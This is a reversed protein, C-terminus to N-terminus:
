VKNTSSRRSGASGKSKVSSNSMKRGFPAKKLGNTNATPELDMKGTKIFAEVGNTNTQSGRRSSGNSRITSSSNRRSGNQLPPLTEPAKLPKPSAVEESTPAVDEKDDPAAPPIPTHSLPNKTFEPIELEGEEALEGNTAQDENNEPPPDGDPDPTKATETEVSKSAVVEDIPVFGPPEENASDAVSDAENGDQAKQEEIRKRVEERREAEKKQEEEVDRDIRPGLETMNAIISKVLWKFGDKLGHNKTAISPEVRTPCRAANVLREVNLSNVVHVEDKAEDIDAKNCLMLIPKGKVKDDQLITEFVKFVSFRVMNLFSIARPNGVTPLHLVQCVNEIQVKGPTFEYYRSPSM